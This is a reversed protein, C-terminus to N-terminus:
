FFLDLRISACTWSALTNQLGGDVECALSRTILSPMRAPSRICSDLNAKDMHLRNTLCTRHVCEYYRDVTAVLTDSTRARAASNCYLQSYVEAAARRYALPDYDDEGSDDDDHVRSDDMSAM